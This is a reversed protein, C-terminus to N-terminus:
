GYGVVRFADAAVLPGEYIPQATLGGVTIGIETGTKWRYADTVLNGIPTDHAGEEGLNVAVEEFFDTATGIQQSYVPGWTNEIETILGDVTAKVTPEEPVSEDLNILQYDLLEMGSNSVSIKMKGVCKYFADAQVIYTTGGLPDTVEVPQDTRLHDHASIIINIGPINSALDQDYLIGLHSLCIILDCGLSNLTDIMALATGAIDDSIVAPDPLSFLNTEPTLLSFIGVKTNGLLKTTFPFIYDKLPQVTPDDLNLNSSLLPFGSGPPFSNRLATDLMAPTLDFEHNGVAMADFGLSAMLQFEPVGFFKNFFFDGIFLDGGHLTLVNQESMKTMGIISAARSIGGQTGELNLDRTGLPALCSHTDNVHLLTLTDQSYNQVNILVFAIIFWFINQM